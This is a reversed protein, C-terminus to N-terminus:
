LRDVRSLGTGAGGTSETVGRTIPLAGYLRACTVDPAAHLLPLDEFDTFDDPANAIWGARSTGTVEDFFFLTRGDLSLATPRRRRSGVADLGPNAALPQGVPWADNGFLRFSAHLTRTGSGGFRSYLFVRDNPALVPDGLRETAPMAAADDDLNQMAGNGASAFADARSARTLEVFSRRDAAVLVLRLGDPAVAVRELAFSGALVAPPGFPDATSARDAVRVSVTGPDQTAWAYTLEDASISGILPGDTDAVAVGVPVGWAGGRPCLPPESPIVVGGEDSADVSEGADLAGADSTDASADVSADVPARPPGEAGPPADALAPPPLPDSCALVMAAGATAIPLLLLARMPIM